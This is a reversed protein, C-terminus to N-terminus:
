SDLRSEALFQKGESLKKQRVFEEFTPVPGSHMTFATQYEHSLKNYESETLEIDPERKIKIM